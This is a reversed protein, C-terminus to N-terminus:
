PDGDMASGGELAGVAMGRLERLLKRTMAREYDEFGLATEVFAGPGTIVLARFYSSLEAIEGQRREAYSPSDAGIVLANVTVGALGPDDKVRSPRPGTNSTGDGSLDLTRQWCARGSLLQAGYLMAAGVATSPHTPERRVARLRGAAGAVDAATELRTWSLLLRQSAPGSWEFVAIEVPVGPMALIAGTVEPAELADALGDLQLRYETGNVSGSIDLGLALSLRCPEGAAPLALLAAAVAARM